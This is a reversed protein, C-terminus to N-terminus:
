HKNKQLPKKPNYPMNVLREIVETSIDANTITLSDLQTNNWINPHRLKSIVRLTHTDLYLTTIEMNDETPALARAVNDRVTDTTRDQIRWISEIDYQHQRVDAKSINTQSFLNISNLQQCDLFPPDVEEKTIAPADDWKTTPAFLGYDNM